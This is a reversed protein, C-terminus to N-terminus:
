VDSGGESDDSADDSDSFLAYEAGPRNFGLPLAQSGEELGGVYTSKGGLDLPQGLRFPEMGPLLAMEEANNDLNAQFTNLVETMQEDMPERLMGLLNRYIDWFTGVTVEPEGISVYLETVREHFFPPVLTFVPHDPPAYLEEVEDFLIPPVPIQRFQHTCYLILSNFCVMFDYANFHSPQSRILAPIGHPLIKQRQKRPATRNKFKVWNDIEGQLWPIAIWRFLFSYPLIFM